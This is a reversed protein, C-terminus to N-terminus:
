FNFLKGANKLVAEGIIEVDFEKLKELEKLVVAVNCPNNKVGKFPSMFPSDTEVLLKDLETKVAVERVEPIFAIGTSIGIFGVEQAHKVSDASAFAHFYADVGAKEVERVAEFEAERAHVVVPKKIESAIQLFHRFVKLQNEREKESRAHYYDLGIEGVAVIEKERERLFEEVRKVREFNGKRAENPHFGLTPVVFGFYPKLKEWSKWVHYKRYETISDIVFDVCGKAKKVESDVDKFFEFHAHCDIM